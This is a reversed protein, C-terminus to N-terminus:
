TEPVFQNITANINSYAKIAETCYNHIWAYM